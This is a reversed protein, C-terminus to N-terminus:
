INKNQEKLKSIKDQLNSMVKEIELRHEENRCEHDVILKEKEEKLYTLQAKVEKSIPLAKPLECPHINPDKYTRSNSEEIIEVCDALMNKLKTEEEVGKSEIDEM